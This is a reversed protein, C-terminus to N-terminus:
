IKLTNLDNYVAIAEPLDLRNYSFIGSISIGFLQLPTPQRKFLSFVMNPVYFLCAWSGDPLGFYRNYAKGSQYDIQFSEILYVGDLVRGSHNYDFSIHRINADAMMDRIVDPLFMVYHEGYAENKRYIPTNAPVIPAFMICGNDDSSIIKARMGSAPKEVLSLSIMKDGHGIDAIYLPLKRM